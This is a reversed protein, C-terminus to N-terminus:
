LARPRAALVWTTSPTEFQMRQSLGLMECAHLQDPCHRNTQWWLWPFSFPASTLFHCTADILQTASVDHAWGRVVVDGDPLSQPEVAVERTLLADVIPRVYICGVLATAVFVSYTLAVGDRQERDHRVLDVLNDDRTFGAAPWDSSSWNRLLTVDRMVAAYDADLLQPTLPAFTLGGREVRAPLQAPIWNM